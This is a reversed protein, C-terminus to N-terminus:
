DESEPQFRVALLLGGADARADGGSTCAPCDGDCVTWDVGQWDGDAFSIPGARGQRLGASSTDDGDLLDVTLVVEIDDPVGTYGIRGAAMAEELIGVGEVCLRAREETDWSAGFIDLQLDANRWEETTCGALLLAWLSL